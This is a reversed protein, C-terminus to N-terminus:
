KKAKRNVLIIMVPLGIAIAVNLLIAIVIDMDSERHWNTSPQM